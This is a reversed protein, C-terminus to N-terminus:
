PTQLYTVIRKERALEQWGRVADNCEIRVDVCRYDSVNNGTLQQSFDSANVYYIDVIQRWRSFYEPPAQFNAHRMGGRGDETGVPIGHMDKPPQSTLNDYDDIDDYRERGSGGTEYNNPGLSTQHAGAGPAAYLTGVVEDVLQQAMGQAITRDVVEATADLSSNIGLLIASGALATLAIALAAEIMTFGAPMRGRNRM